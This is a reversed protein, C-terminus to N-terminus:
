AYLDIRRLDYTPAGSLLRNVLEIRSGTTSLGIANLCAKLEPIKLAHLRISAESEENNNDDDESSDSDEGKPAKKARKKASKKSGDGYNVEDDVYEDEDEVYLIEEDDFVYEEEDVSSEDVKRKKDDNSPDM